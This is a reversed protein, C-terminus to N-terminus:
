PTGCVGFGIAITLNIRSNGCEDLSAMVSFFFELRVAIKEARATLQHINALLRQNLHTLPHIFMTGGPSPRSLGCRM